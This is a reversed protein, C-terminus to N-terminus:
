DFCERIAELINSKVLIEVQPKGDEHLESAVAVARDAIKMGQGVVMRRYGMVKCNRINFADLRWSASFAGNLINVHGFIMTDERPRRKIMLSVLSAYIAGMQYTPEIDDYGHEIHVHLNYGRKMLVLDDHSPVSLTTAIEPISEVVLGQLNRIADSSIKSLGGTMIVTCDGPGVLCCQVEFIGVNDRALGLCKGVGVHVGDLAQVMAETGAFGLPLSSM